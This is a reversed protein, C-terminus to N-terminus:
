FIKNVQLFLEFLRRYNDEAKAICKGLFGGLFFAALKKAEDYSDLVFKDDSDRIIKEHRYDNYHQISKRTPL